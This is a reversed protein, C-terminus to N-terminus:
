SERYFLSSYKAEYKQAHFIQNTEMDVLVVM